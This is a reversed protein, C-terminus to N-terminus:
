FKIINLKLWVLCGTSLLMTYRKERIHLVYKCHHAISVAKRNVQVSVSCKSKM